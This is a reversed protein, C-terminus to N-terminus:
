PKAKPKEPRVMTWLILVALPHLFAMAIFIKEAGLTGMFQGVFYNFLVAGLAGFGGAIGLVSAVNKVPFAEAVVVSITFLWSLCAIAVISFVALTAWAGGLYPTLACLPSLVAVRTLMVKRAKLPDYGKRVLKDSWASTGIAGVDAFLFPIWGFMGVQALTLGSEEQLYGPLWFLCFYWVPDSVFRILLIGWLSKTSWLQKWEFAATPEGSSSTTAEKMIHAPPDRYILKWLIAILIGIAGMTIFAVKWSYTIALWAITPPAIIAGISSGAVCLSNATARLKGPFWIAIVKLQAPFNTPEAAGLLGRFFGFQGITRSLGGGICALSWTIIGWFMVLRAGFRDVMWGTVPYMVAYCITFINLIWAYGSDNLSFESKLLPKLISVIQRDVYNFVIALFIIAVIFWRRKEPSLLTKM